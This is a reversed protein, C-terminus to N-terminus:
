NEVAYGVLKQIGDLPGDHSIQGCLFHKGEACEIYFDVPRREGGTDECKVEHLLDPSLCRVSIARVWDGVKLDCLRVPVTLVMRIGAPPTTPHFEAFRFRPHDRGQVKVWGPGTIEAVVWKVLDGPQVNDFILRGLLLHQGPVALEVVRAGDSTIRGALIQGCVAADKCTYLM